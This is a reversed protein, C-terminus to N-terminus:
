LLINIYYKDNAHLYAFRLQSQRFSWDCLVQMVGQCDVKMSNSAYRSRMKKMQLKIVVLSTQLGEAVIMYM